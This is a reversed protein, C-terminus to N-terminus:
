LVEEEEEVEDREPWQHPGGFLEDWHARCEELSPFQYAHAREVTAEQGDLLRVICIGNKQVRKPWGEPCAKRIFHGVSTASSRQSRNFRGSHRVFDYTLDSVVVEKKWTGHQPDLKGEWLKSYWWEAEANQSLLKQETLAATRPMNRVDFQSLDLTLLFHLLAERGGRQVMQADLEVFYDRDEMKSDAVDLVFFRRDSYGAPVIWDDNSAMLLHICNQTSEADIGKREVTITEETVLMKLVSEHKKDGAFFAEDSFLVVCDQLHANFSGVLHKPDSVQLFHHGFLSGFMKVFYGKGTGPRGRLVVATFGPADPMQVARAMWHTLYNYHLTVSDCIVHLLHDMFARCDGPKAECSFGRWLNYAGEVERGPAFVIREYQRRYSSALWWHGLPVHKTKGDKGASVEVYKNMYRNRISAFSQGSLNTRGRLHDEEEEIVLCKGGVNGIIAHKDNMTRLWPEVAEDKAREIQRVAYKESGAGKKLVHESISFEPDTIVSFIIDDDVGARVLSCLAAWLAESNSKYKGPNDPDHGNAILVRCWSPVEEPLEDLSELRRVNGSVEVLQGSFAAGDQIEAAAAFKSIDYERGDHWEVLRALAIKRGKKLKRPSPRNLTGPLRMIRDVNHCHDAGFVRELQLNYRKAEEAKELDGGILIPERLRWFGQYGGGSFVIVTPKPVGGPPNQLLNLAREQELTLDEGDKPDVDVHLWALERVDERSAKKDLERLLPNVTFYVNHTEGWQELWRRVQNLQLFTRSVIGQQSPVIATLQWPGGPRWRTLFEVSEDYNPVM